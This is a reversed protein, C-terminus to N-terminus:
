GANAFTMVVDGDNTAVPALGNPATTAKGTKPDVANAHRTSWDMFIIMLGGITFITPDKAILSVAGVITASMWAAAKRSAEINTDGPPAVRMDAITPTFQTYLGYVLAGTAAAVGLSVEPKLLSAM